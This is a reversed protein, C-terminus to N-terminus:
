GIMSVNRCMRKLSPEWHQVVSVPFAFAVAVCAKRKINVGAGDGAIHRLYRQMPLFTHFQHEDFMALAHHLGPRPRVMQQRGACPINKDKYRACQMPKPGFAACFHLIFINNEFQRNQAAFFIVHAPTKKQRQLGATQSQGRHKTRSMGGIQCCGGRQALQFFGVLLPTGTVFQRNPARQKCKQGYKKRGPVGRKRRFVGDVRAAQLFHQATDFGLVACSQGHRPGGRGAPQAGAM